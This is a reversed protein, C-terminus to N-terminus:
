ETCLKLGTRELSQFREGTLLIRACEHGHLRGCGMLRVTNVMATAMAKM